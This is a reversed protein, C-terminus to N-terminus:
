FAKWNKESRKKADRSKKYLAGTFAGIKAALTLALTGLSKGSM